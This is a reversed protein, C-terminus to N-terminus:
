FQHLCHDSQGWGRKRYGAEYKAKINTVKFRFQITYGIKVGESTTLLFRAGSASATLSGDMHLTCSMGSPDGEDLEPLTLEALFDVLAQGKITTRPHYSINIEGLEVAWKVM